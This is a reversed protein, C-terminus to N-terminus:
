GFIVDTFFESGVTIAVPVDGLPLEKELTTNSWLCGEPLPCLGVLPLLTHFAAGQCGMDGDWLDGRVGFQPLVGLGLM